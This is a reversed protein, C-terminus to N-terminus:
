GARRVDAAGRRGNAHVHVGYAGAAMGSAKLSVRVGDGAQTVTAQAKEEGQANRLVASASDARARDAQGTACGALSLSLIMVVAHKMKARRSKTVEVLADHRNASGM